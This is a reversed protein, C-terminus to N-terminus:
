DSLVVDDRPRGAAFCFRGGCAGFTFRVDRVAVGVLSTPESVPITRNLGTRFGESFGWTVIQRDSNIALSNQKGAAVFSATLGPIVTPPLVAERSSRENVYVDENDVASLDIGLQGSDCRGWALVAGDDTCALSHQYGGALHALRRDALRGVLTPFEVVPVRLSQDIDVGTQGCDNLGWAWVRGSNDVAFSHRLGAFIRAVAKKPLNLARPALSEFEHRPSLRRGLQGQQGVGWAYVTGDSALALVHEAGASLEKIDRLGALQVPTKQYIQEFTPQSRRGISEKRFGFPGDANFFTGWGYVLGDVTLLFTAHDTAVVQAVAMDLGELGEVEAPASELPHLLHRQPDDAVDPRPSTVRGLADADDSGWTLVRGDRTLAACHTDGVALQVVGAPEADLM